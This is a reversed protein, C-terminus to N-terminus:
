DINIADEIKQLEATIDKKEFKHGFIYGEEVEIITSDVNVKYMWIKGNDGNRHAAKVIGLFYSVDKDKSIVIVQDNIAYKPMDNIVSRNYM